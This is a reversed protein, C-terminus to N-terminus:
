MGSCYCLTSRFSFLLWCVFSVQLLFNEQQEQRSEFKCGKWWSDWATVLLSDWSWASVCMCVCVYGNQYIWREHAIVISTSVFNAVGASVVHARGMHTRTWQPPPQCSARQGTFWSGASGQGCHFFGAVLVFTEPWALSSTVFIQLVSLM